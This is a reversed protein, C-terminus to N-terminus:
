PRRSRRLRRLGARGLQAAGVVAFVATGAVVGAETGPLVPLANYRGVLLLVVALLWAVYGAVAARRPTTEM